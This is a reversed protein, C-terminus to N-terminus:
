CCRLSSEAVRRFSVTQSTSWSRLWWCASPWPTGLGEMMGAVGVLGEGLLKQGGHALFILGVVVRLSTAGWGRLRNSVVTQQM